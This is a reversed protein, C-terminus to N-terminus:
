INRYTCNVVCHKVAPWEGVEFSVHLMDWFFASRLASAGKQGLWTAPMGLQHTALSARGKPTRKKDTQVLQRSQGSSSQTNNRRGGAERIPSPLPRQGFLWWRIATLWKAVWTSTERGTNTHTLDLECIKLFVTVLIQSMTGCTAEEREGRWTGAAPPVQSWLINDLSRTSEWVIPQSIRYTCRKKGDACLRSFRTENCALQLSLLIKPPVRSCDHEPIRDSHSIKHSEARFCDQRQQWSVMKATDSVNTMCRLM